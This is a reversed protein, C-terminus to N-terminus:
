NSVESENNELKIVLTNDIIKISDSAPWIGMEQVARSNKLNELQEDSASPISLDFTEQLYLYTRDNDYLLDEELLSALLHIRNSPQSVGMSVDYARVGIFAITEINTETEHQVEDIRTMMQTGMYYSKEYCKHLYFYSINAMIAFNFVIVGMFLGFVTSVKPKAWKDFLVLAFIYLVCISHLMMPRYQVSDSLFNWISIAPILALLCLFALILRGAKKYLNSKVIAVVLIMVFALLFVINLIGYLTIPHELPNWELFFFLLNRISEIFGSILTSIGIQGVSNIGQYDTAEIGTIFLIGKWILYYCGLGIAYVIIHKGIQIWGNKATYDQNFLRILFFCLCLVIAFSVYAQYIACSLCLFLASIVYHYWHTGKCSLLAAVASFLLGLFYGDATFGFFLTETTSPFSALFVGVLVAVVPNKIDFLEIIIVSTLSLYLASLLGNIWPLDFYSSIGCAISLFWRGSITMDQSSYVNFLSDHNPLTNTFKYIHILFVSLFTFFFALKWNRKIKTQYANLLNEGM